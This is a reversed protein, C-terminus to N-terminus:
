VHKGDTRPFLTFWWDSNYFYGCASVISWVNFCVKLCILLQKLEFLMTVISFFYYKKQEIHKNNFNCYNKFSYFHSPNLIFYSMFQLLNFPIFLNSQRLINNNDPTQSCCITWSNHRLASIDRSFHGGIGVRWEYVHVLLGAVMM